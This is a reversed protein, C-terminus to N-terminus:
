FIGIRKEYYGGQLKTADYSTLPDPPLVGRGDAVKCIATM